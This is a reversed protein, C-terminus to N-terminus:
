RHALKLLLRAAHGQAIDGDLILRGVAKSLLDHEWDTLSITHLRVGKPDKLRPPTFRRNPQSRVKIVGYMAMAATVGQSELERVTDEEASSLPRRRHRVLDNRVYDLYAPGKIDRVDM